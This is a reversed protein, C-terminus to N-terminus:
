LRRQLSHEVCAARHVTTDAPRSCWSATVTASMICSLCPSHKRVEHACGPVRASPSAWLAARPQLKACGAAAGALRQELVLPSLHKLTKNSKWRSLSRPPHGWGLIVLCATVADPGLEIKATCSRRM